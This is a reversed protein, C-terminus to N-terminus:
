KTSCEEQGHIRATGRHRLGSTRYSRPCSDSKHAQTHLLQAETALSVDTELDPRRSYPPQIRQMANSRCGFKEILKVCHLAGLPLCPLCSWTANLHAGYLSSPWTGSAAGREIDRLPLQVGLEGPLGVLLTGSGALLAAGCPEERSVRSWPRPSSL